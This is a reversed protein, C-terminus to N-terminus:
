RYGHRCRDAFSNTQQHSPFSPSRYLGNQSGDQEFRKLVDMVLDFIPVIEGEAQRRLLDLWKELGSSQM